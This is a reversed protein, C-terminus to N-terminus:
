RSPFYIGYKNAIKEANILSQNYTIHKIIPFFAKPANTLVFRLKNKEPNYITINGDFIIEGINPEMVLKYHFDVKGDTYNLIKCNLNEIHGTLKQIAIKDSRNSKPIYKENSFCVDKVQIGFDISFSM